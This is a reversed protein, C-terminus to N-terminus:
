QQVIRERPTDRQVRLRPLIRRQVFRFGDGREKDIVRCAFRVQNLFPLSQALGSTLSRDLHRSVIEIADGYFNPFVLLALRGGPGLRGCLFVEGVRRLRSFIKQHGILLFNHLVQDAAEMGCFQWGSGDHLIRM